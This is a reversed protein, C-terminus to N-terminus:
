GRQKYRNITSRATKEYEMTNPVSLPVIELHGMFSQRHNCGFQYCFCGVDPVFYTSIHLLVGSLRRLPIDLSFIGLIRIIKQGIKTM